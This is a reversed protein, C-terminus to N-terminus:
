EFLLESTEVVFYDVQNVFSTLISILASCTMQVLVIIIHSCKSDSDVAATAKVGSM